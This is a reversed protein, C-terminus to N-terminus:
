AARTSDQQFRAIASPLGSHAVQFESAANKILAILEAIDRKAKAADEVKACAEGLRAAGVNVSMSKLAHAAKAITAADNTQTSNALTLLAAKSHEEFLTLARVPLNSGSSQMARLQHLVADDFPSDGKDDAPATTNIDTDAALAAANDVRDSNRAVIKAAKIETAGQQSPKMYKTMVEALAGITFPKTLYDNMGATRWSEEVDAVHATLAVIPTQKRGRKKELRRIARTAEFGDMEPMSCDMLILAFDNQAANRVAERGDAVLVPTLNLNELAERVVERNVISDDAALIRQGSFVIESAPIDDETSVAVKGRLKRDFVRRLQQMVDHRSLPSILLDEAVGTELLRDPAADGLESICIRAPVWQTPEGELSHKLRDLFHPTGFIMDANIVHAGIAGESDIIQPTVGTESLYKALMRPTAAGDIAIIARKEQPTEPRQVPPAIIKAPFSFHFRSGKNERSSVGITGNMAEVLRRSIALGLGTGGFKRTTTQDAQSFAEFIASQKEDSIGVGTDSVAFEIISKENDTTLCGATVTVHGSETFKLANNVLNSIIQSIRVPDGEIIEPVEPAVYAALDIGKNAAREWFLSVVDDLIEAPRVAIMELDLRGAEIKSFDLIDNIIALLSKGSKAIVDAYRKQRPPLQSQNLLDAMVMMGNMPTRIEHSMTALFESKALNAAEAVEKATQLEQTRRQVIKKLDRQHARLKEDREQLQGLMDNFADVLQGTEDNVGPVLARRSFDGSERVRGMVTALSLIPDTISRQMKLAILLGIGAAFIAAVLADYVLVGIRNHLAGADAHITLEGVQVGGSVVPARVIRGRNSFSPFKKFVGENREAERVSVDSGLQALLAGDVGTVRVYETSPIRSIGRLANLTEREDGAAVHNAIASAFVNATADLEALKGDQYQTVERWVSSVTVITVVGFITVVVLGTLRTRLSTKRKSM